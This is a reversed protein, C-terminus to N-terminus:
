HPSVQINTADIENYFTYNRVRKVQEFVGTVEVRDGEKIEPHGFMFVKVSSGDSDQVRLTIYPNGARSTPKTVATATGQVTVPNAAIARLSATEARAAGSIIWAILAIWIIADRGLVAAAVPVRKLRM